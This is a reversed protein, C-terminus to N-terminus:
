RNEDIFLPGLADFWRDAMKKSGQDNPHVGDRNDAVADYSTYQDVARIPSDATDHQAAWTVIRADLAPVDTACNACSCGSCTMDTVHMPIIQAVFIVVKPNATRLSDVVASYANVIDETP